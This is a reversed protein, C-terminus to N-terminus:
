KQLIPQLIPKLVGVVLYHVNRPRVALSFDSFHLKKKCVRGSAPQGCPSILNSHRVFANHRGRVELLIHGSAANRRSLFVMLTVCLLSPPCPASTLLRQRPVMFKPLCVLSSSLKLIMSRARSSPM